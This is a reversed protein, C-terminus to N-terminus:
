EAWTGLDVSMRMALRWFVLADVTPCDRFGILTHFIRSLHVRAYATTSFHRASMLGSIGAASSLM